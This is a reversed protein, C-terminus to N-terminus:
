DIISKGYTIQKNQNVTSNGSFEQLLLIKQELKFLYRKDSRDKFIEGSVGLEM